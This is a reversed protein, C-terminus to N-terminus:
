RRIAVIVFSHHLRAPLGPVLTHETGQWKHRGEVPCLVHNPTDTYIASLGWHRKPQFEKSCISPQGVRKSQLPAHKRERNEVSRLPIDTEVYQVIMAEMQLNLGRFSGLHTGNRCWCGRAEM